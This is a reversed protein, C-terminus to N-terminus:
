FYKKKEANFEKNLSQLEKLDIVLNLQKIFYDLMNSADNIEKEELKSKGEEIIKRYDNIENIMKEKEKIVNSPTISEMIKTLNDEIPKLDFIKGYNDNIQDEIEQLNSMITNGNCTNNELNKSQILNKVKYLYSELDNRKNSYELFDQDKKFIANETYTLGAVIKNKSSQSLYLGRQSVKIINKNLNIKVSNDKNIVSEIKNIHVEGINDILYTVKLQNINPYSKLIESSIIDYSVLLVNNNSTNDTYLYEKIEDKKHYFSINIKNDLDKKDFFISKFEPIQAHNSIFEEEKNKSSQLISYHNLHYIGKFNHIPFCGKLLAGYLSCGASLCEDTLITKSMEIKTIEKITKELIPTRMLEGAMEVNTLDIDPYNKKIKDCFNILENKFLEIKDSIIKEYEERTLILSFDIDDSLSDVSIQADKNVTLTKRAKEIPKLLRLKIKNNKSIDINNEKNFKDCCYKYIAEDFDRGGLFPITSTDLVTFLNSTLKSLVFSTKSHGADVFLIYKTITPDITASNGENKKVFYEKYKKFGFYLTIASSENLLHADNKIGASEIIQMYKNKQSCTFYDPVSFVTCEPKIDKKLIYSNYLLHLYSLVIGEPSITNEEGNIIYTFENKEPIYKDGVYYYNNLETSSFPTKPDFGIFRNIYQFSSKINKRLVLSAQDGIVRNTEGFSLISPCVRSSTESLLVETKFQLASNLKQGFTVTSNLSGINIGIM